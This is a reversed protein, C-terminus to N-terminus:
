KGRKGPSKPRSIQSKLQKALQTFEAGAGRLTHDKEAKVNIATMKGPSRTSKGAADRGQVTKIKSFPIALFGEKTEILLRHSTVTWRGGHGSFVAKVTERPQLLTELKRTFDRQRRERRRRVGSRIALLVLLLAPVALFYPWFDLVTEM